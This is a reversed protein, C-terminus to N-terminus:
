FLAITKYKELEMTLRRIEAELTKTKTELEALRSEISRDKAQTYVTPM